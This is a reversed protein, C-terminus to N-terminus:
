ERRCERLSARAEEYTDFYRLPKGCSACHTWHNGRHRDRPSSSYFNVGCLAVMDHRKQRAALERHLRRRIKDQEAKRKAAAKDSPSLPNNM